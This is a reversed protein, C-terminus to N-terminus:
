KLIVIIYFVFICCWNRVQGLRQVNNEYDWHLSRHCGWIPLTWWGLGYTQIAQVFVGSPWQPQNYSGKWFRSWAFASLLMDSLLFWIFRICLTLKIADIFIHLSLIIWVMRLEDFDPYIEHYCKVIHGSPRLIGNSYIPDFINVSVKTCPVVEVNVHTIDGTFPYFSM